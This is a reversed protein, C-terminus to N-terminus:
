RRPDVVVRGVVQRDRLAELRAGVDPLGIEASVLPVLRGADLWGMLEAHVGDLFRRNDVGRSYAGM